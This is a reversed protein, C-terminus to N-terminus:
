LIIIQILNFRGLSTNKKRFSPAGDACKYIMMKGLLEMFSTMIHEQWMNLSVELSFGGLCFTEPVQAIGNMDMILTYRWEYGMYPM